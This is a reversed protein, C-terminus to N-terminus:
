RGHIFSELNHLTVQSTDTVKMLTGGYTGAAHTGAMTSEIILMEDPYVGTVKEIYQYMDPAPKPNEVDDSSVIIPFFRTIDLINLIRLVTEKRSNSTICLKYDKSLTDLLHIQSQNPLINRYFERIINYQKRDDILAVDLDSLKLHTKLIGLKAHTPSGDKVVHDIFKEKPLKTVYGIADTLANYHQDELDVLVGNVSFTIVKIM